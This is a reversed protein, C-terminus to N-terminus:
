PAREPPPASPADRQGPLPAWSPPMSARWCGICDEAVAIGADLLARAAAPPLLGSQFWVVSPRAALVDPLHPAFDDPKAFVSLVFTAEPVETVRRRVPAGLIHSAEPYRLPVPVVLYGVKKLYLPIQYADRDRRSEPKIGLVAITRASELAREMEVVGLLPLAEM